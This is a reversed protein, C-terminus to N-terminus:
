LNHFIENKKNRYVIHNERSETSQQAGFCKPNFQTSIIIIYYYYYVMVKMRPPRINISTFKYVIFPNETIDKNAAMIVLIYKWSFNNLAFKVSINVNESLTFSFIRLLKKKRIEIVRCFPGPLIHM